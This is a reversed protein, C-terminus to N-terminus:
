AAKWYFEEWSPGAPCKTLFCNCLFEWYFDGEVQCNSRFVWNRLALMNVDFLYLDKLEILMFFRTSGPLPMLM